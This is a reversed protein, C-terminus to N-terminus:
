AFRGYPTHGGHHLRSANWIQGCATCRWYTSLTVAKSTTTVNLSACFPCAKPAVTPDALSSPQTFM